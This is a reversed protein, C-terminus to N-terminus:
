CIFYRRTLTEQLRCHGLPYIGVPLQDLLSAMRVFEDCSTNDNFRRVKNGGERRWELLTIKREMEIKKKKM